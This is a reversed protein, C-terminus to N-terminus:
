NAFTNNFKYCLPKLKLKFLKVEFKLELLESDVEDMIDKFTRENEIDLLDNEVKELTNRNEECQNM